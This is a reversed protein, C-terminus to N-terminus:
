KLIPKFSYVDKPNKSTKFFSFYLEDLKMSADFYMKSKESLKKADAMKTLVNFFENKRTSKLLEKCKENSYLLVSFDPSKDVNCIGSLSYLLVRKIRSNTYSKSSLNDFFEDPCKANKSAEKIIAGIEACSDFANDINERSAIISSRYIFEKVSNQLIYEGNEIISKYEEELCVPISKFFNNKVFHNRIASASMIQNETLDNYRAGVRKISFYKLPLKKSKIARIYELALIDNSSKPLRCGYKKLAAEKAQLYNNSADLNRELEAGFDEKDIIEAIKELESVDTEETGFCLHTCGLQGAILVGANAFIEATSGSYPYPIEFVGDLGCKSALYARNYKDIIAFEGRQVINGSMIGIVTADPMNEKIKEIQYKHGKHFPNYECIIGVVNGM